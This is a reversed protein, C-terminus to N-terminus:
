TQTIPDEFNKHRDEMILPTSVLIKFIRVGLSL